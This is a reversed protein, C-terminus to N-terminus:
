DMSHMSYCLWRSTVLLNRLLWFSAWFHRNPAHTAMKATGSDAWCRGVFFHPCLHLLIGCLQLSGGLYSVGFIDCAIPKWKYINWGQIVKAGFRLFVEYMLRLIAVFLQCLPHTNTNLRLLTLVWWNSMERKDQPTKERGMQVNM